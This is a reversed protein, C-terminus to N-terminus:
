SHFVCISVLVIHKIKSLSMAVPHSARSPSWLIRKDLDVTVAAPTNERHDCFPWPSFTAGGRHHPQIRNPGEMPRLRRAKDAILAPCCLFGGRPGALWNPLMARPRGNLGAFVGADKFRRTKGRVDPCVFGLPCGTELHTEPHRTSRRVLQTSGPNQQCEPEGALNWHWGAEVRDASGLYGRISCLASGQPDTISGEQENSSSALGAGIACELCELSGLLSDNSFKLIQARGGKREEGLHFEKAQTGLKVRQQAQTSAGGYAPTVAGLLEM